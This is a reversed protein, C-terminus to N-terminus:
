GVSVTDRRLGSNLNGETPAQTDGVGADPGPTGNPNNDKGPTNGAAQRLDEVMKSNSQVEQSMEMLIAMVQQYRPDNPDTTLRQPKGLNQARFLAEVLPRVDIEVAGIQDRVKLSVEISKMLQEIDIAQERIARPGLKVEMRDGDMSTKTWAEVIKAGEIGLMRRLKEEKYHERMLGMVGRVTDAVMDEVDDVLVDLESDGADVGMQDQTATKGSGALQRRANPLGILQGHIERTVNRQNHLAAKDSLNFDLMHVLKQLDEPSIGDAIFTKGDLGHELAHMLSKAWEKGQAIGALLFIRINKRASATDIAALENLNLQQPWGAAVWPLGCTSVWNRVVPQLPASIKISWFGPISPTGHLPGPKNPDDDDLDTIVFPNANSKNVFGDPYEHCVYEYRGGDRRGPAQIQIEWMEVLKRDLSRDDDHSHKDKNTDDPDLQSFARSAKGEIKKRAAAKWTSDNNKFDEQDVYIQRARWWTDDLDFVTDDWVLEDGPQLFRTWIEHNKKRMVTKFRKGEQTALQDHAQARERLAAKDEANLNPDTRATDRLAHAIRAHDQGEEAGEGHLLTDALAETEDTGAALAIKQTVVDAHYGIALGGVGYGCLAGVLSRVEKRLRAEYLARGVATDVWAATQEDGPGPQQDKINEQGQGADRNMKLYIPAGTTKSLVYRWFRYTFNEGRFRFDNLVTKPMTPSYSATEMALSIAEALPQRERMVAKIKDRSRKLRELWLSAESDFSRKFPTANGM